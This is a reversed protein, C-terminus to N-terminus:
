NRAIIYTNIYPWFLNCNAQNWSKTLCLEVIKSSVLEGNWISSELFGNSRVTDLIFNNLPGNFWDIMPANIGIKDKRMRISEPIIGELCERLIAKNYSNNVKHEANSSFVLEVLRYDMFPMRIEVGASMSARDWNRLITPLKFEFFNKYAVNTHIKGFDRNGSKDLDLYPIYRLYNTERNLNFMFKRYKNKITRPLKDYLFEIAGSRIKKDDNIFSHIEADCIGDWARILSQKISDNKEYNYWDVIMDPYGFLMEDAGHGDISVSIGNNKMREYILHVIPPSMYVFDNHRVENVISDVSPEDIYIIESKGGCYDIVKNAYLVEDVNTNPFSAVFAKIHDTQPILKKIVGYIASSDLGGSLAVGLPVDSRLRLNIADKFLNIFLEHFDFDNSYIKLNSGIEYWKKVTTVGFYDVLLNCGPKLLLINEFITQGQGELVFVNNINIAVNNNNLRKSFIELNGFSKTESSFAFFDKDHVYYLPKVGFRDRSLFLYKKVSDWIAFAWMGNFHNVCDEGWYDYAQLIVETDTQTKFTYGYEILEVRLEVYNYIEGNFTIVYREDFSSMPQSGANTLDIISLRRHGLFINGDNYIGEGDPGRHSLSNNFISFSNKSIYLETFCLLGTVGCM